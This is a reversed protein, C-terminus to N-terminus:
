PTQKIFPQNEAAFIFFIFLLLFFLTIKDGHFSSDELEQRQHHRQIHQKHRMAETDVEVATRFVMMQHAAKAIRGQQTLMAHLMVVMTMQVGISEFFVEPHNMETGFATTFVKFALDTKGVVVGEGGFFVQDNTRHARQQGIHEWHHQILSRGQVGTTPDM